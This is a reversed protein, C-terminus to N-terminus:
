YSGHTTQKAFAAQHIRTNIPEALVRQNFPSMKTSAAPLQYAEKRNAVQM